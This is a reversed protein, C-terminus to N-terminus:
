YYNELPRKEAPVFLLPIMLLMELRGPADGNNPMADGNTKAMFSSSSFIVLSCTFGWLFNTQNGSGTDKLRWGTFTQLV